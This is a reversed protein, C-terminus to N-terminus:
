RSWGDIAALGAVAGPPLRRVSEATLGGLAIVPLDAVRALASLRYPGLAPAGPHSRTPFAPSLLAADADLARARALAGANHCAVTLMRPPCTWGLTPALTGGRAIGEPLHLGDAGVAAALRLNGAVVFAMGRARTIRRLRRGEQMAETRAMGYPRWLLAAGRPLRALVAAPDPLRAPDSLLWLRPLPRGGRMVAPKLRVAADALTRAVRMGGIEHQDHGDLGHRLGSDSRL